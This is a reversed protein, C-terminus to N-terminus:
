TATGIASLAPEPPATISESRAIVVADPYSEEMEMVPLGAPRYGLPSM